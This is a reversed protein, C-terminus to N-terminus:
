LTKWRRQLRIVRMNLSQERKNTQEERSVRLIRMQVTKNGSGSFLLASTSILISIRWFITSFEWPFSGRSRLLVKMQLKFTNSRELAPTTKGPLERCYAHTMNLSSERRRREGKSVQRVQRKLVRSWKERVSIFSVFRLCAM